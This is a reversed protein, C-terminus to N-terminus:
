VQALPLRAEAAPVDRFARQEAEARAADDNAFLIATDVIWRARDGSMGALKLKNELNCPIPQGKSTVGKWDVLIHDYLMERYREDDQREVEAGTRDRVKRTTQKMFHTVMAPTLPRLCYEEDHSNPYEIWVGQQDDRDLSFSM